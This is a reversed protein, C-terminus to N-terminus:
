REQPVAPATQGFGPIAKGNSLQDHFLGKFGRAIIGPGPCVGQCVSRSGTPQSCEVLGPHVGPARATFAAM